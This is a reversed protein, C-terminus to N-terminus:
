QYVDKYWDLKKYAEEIGMKKNDVTGFRNISLGSYFDVTITRNWKTSRVGSLITKTSNKFLITKSLQNQLTALEKEDVFSHVYHIFDYFIPEGFSYDFGQIKRTSWKGHIDELKHKKMIQNMVLALSKLEGTKVLSYSAGGNIAENKNYENFVDKAISEYDVDKKLLLPILSPYPHGTAPLLSTGGLIYKTKDRLQYVVEVCQMLCADFIIYEFTNLPIADALDKIEMSYVAPIKGFKDERLDEGFARTQVECNPFCAPLWGTGHSWLILGKRKISKTKNLYDTIVLGLREKTASNAESYIQVTDVKQESDKKYVRLLLPSNDLSGSEGDYYIFVDGGTEANEIGEKVKEMNNLADQNLDNDAIMYLLVSSKNSDARTSPENDIAVDKECSSLLVLFSAFCFITQFYKKIIM